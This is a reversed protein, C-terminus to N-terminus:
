ISKVVPSGHGNLGKGVKVDLGERSWMSSGKVSGGGGRGGWGERVVGEGWRGEGEGDQGPIGIAELSSGVVFEWVEFGEEFLVGRVKDGKLFSM